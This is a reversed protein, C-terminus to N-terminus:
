NAFFEGWCVLGGSINPCCRPLCASLAPPSVLCLLQCPLRAPDISTAAKVVSIKASTVLLDLMWLLVLYRRYQTHTLSNPISNMCITKSYQFSSGLLTNTKVTFIWKSFPWIIGYKESNKLILCINEWNWWWKNYISFGNFM